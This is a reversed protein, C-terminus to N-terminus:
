ISAMFGKGLQWIGVNTAKWYAVEASKGRNLFIFIWVKTNDCRLRLPIPGYKGMVHVCTFVIRIRVKRGLAERSGSNDEFFHNKGTRKSSFGNLCPNPPNELIELFLFPVRHYTMPWGSHPLVLVISFIM